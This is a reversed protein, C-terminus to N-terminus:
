LGANPDTSVYEDNGYNPDISLYESAPQQNQPSAARKEYDNAVGSLVIALLLFITVLGGRVYGVKGHTVTYGWDHDWNTEGHSKLNRYSVLQTILSIFPLGLGM